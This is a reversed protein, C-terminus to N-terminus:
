SVNVPVTQTGTGIQVNADNVVTVQVGNVSGQVVYDHIAQALAEAVTDSDTASMGDQFVQKLADKLDNVNLAM